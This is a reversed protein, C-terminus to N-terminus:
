KSEHVCLVDNNIRILEYKDEADIDVLYIMGNEDCYWGVKAIIRKGEMYEVMYANHGNKMFGIIESSPYRAQLIEKVESRKYIGKVFLVDESDGEFTKISSQQPTITFTNRNDTFSAYKYSEGKHPTLTSLESLGYGTFIKSWNVTNVKVGLFDVYLWNGEIHEKNSIPPISGKITKNKIYESISAVSSSKQKLFLLNKATNFELVPYDDTHLTANAAYAKIDDGNFAFNKIIEDPLDKEPFVESEGPLVEFGGSMRTLDKRIRQNKKLMKVIHSYDLAVPEKSAIMIGDNGSVWLTAYPFVEKVTNLFVKTDAETFDYLPIWQSFVGNENLHERVILYFEKTFLGSEGSVWLNSPESVIVDYKDNSTLLYNRADAIILNVRMDELANGNYESFYRRAAEVVLPNLEIVDVSSIDFAEIVGLTFGGGVGINLVKKSEPMAFMPLYGLLFQTSMDYPTNSADVKNNIWLSRWIDVDEVVVAGYANNGVFIIEGKGSYKDSEGTPDHTIKYVGKVLPNVTFSIMYVGLILMVFLIAYFKTRSEKNSFRFVMVAATINLIAAFVTTKAHGLEPILIFGAAFSGFIAGFTNSSFITGIDRGVSDINNAYIKSIVPLTAGMLTTPLLMFLFSVLFISLMFLYFSGTISYFMVLALEIKNFFLLIFLSSIGIGIELYAFITVPDKNANIYRGVAYSGLGLGAFFAALMLSFSYASAGFSLTLLQTWVVEYILASFGSLFFSLLITRKLSLMRLGKEALPM